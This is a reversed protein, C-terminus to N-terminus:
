RRIKCDFRNVLLMWVNEPADDVLAGRIVSFAIGTESVYLIGFVVDVTSRSVINSAIGAVGALSLEACNLVLLGLSIIQLSAKVQPTM